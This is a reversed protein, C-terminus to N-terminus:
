ACFTQYGTPIPCQLRILSLATDVEGTTGRGQRYVLGVQARSSLHPDTRELYPHFHLIARVVGLCERETASYNREAPILARSWYGVPMLASDEQEQLLAYGLQTSM